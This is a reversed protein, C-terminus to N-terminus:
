ESGCSGVAEPRVRWNRSWAPPVIRMRFWRPRRRQAKGSAGTPPAAGYVRQQAELLSVAQAVKDQRSLHIYLPKGFALEFQAADDLPDPQIVSLGATRVREAV